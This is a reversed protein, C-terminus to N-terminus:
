IDMDILAYGHEHTFYRGKPLVPIRDGVALFKAAIRLAKPDESLVVHHPPDAGAARWQGGNVLAGMAAGPERLTPDAIATQGARVM